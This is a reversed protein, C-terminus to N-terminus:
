WIEIEHKKISIFNIHLIKLFEERPGKDNGPARRRSKLKEFNCSKSIGLILLKVYEVCFNFVRFDM